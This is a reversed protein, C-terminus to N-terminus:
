AFLKFCQIHATYSNHVLMGIGSKENKQVETDTSALLTTKCYSAILM